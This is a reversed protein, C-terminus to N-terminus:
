FSGWSKDSIISGWRRMSMVVPSMSTTFTAGNKLFGHQDTAMPSATETFTGVIQGANNSGMAITNDAGPVDITPYTAWKESDMTPAATTTDEYMGVIQGGDNIGYALTDIPGPCM